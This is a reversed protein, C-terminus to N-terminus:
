ALLKRFRTDNRRIEYVENSRSEIYVDTNIVNKPLPEGPLKDMTNPDKQNIVSFRARLLKM